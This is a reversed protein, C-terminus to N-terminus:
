LTHFFQWFVGGGGGGGWNLDPQSLQIERKREETGRDIQKLGCFCVGTVNNPKNPKLVLKWGMETARSNGARCPQTCAMVVFSNATRLGRVRINKM